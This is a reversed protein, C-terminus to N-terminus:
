MNPLQSQELLWCTLVSDLYSDQLARLIYFFSAIFSTKSSQPCNNLVSGIDRQPDFDRSVEYDLHQTCDLWLREKPNDATEWWGYRPAQRPPLTEVDFISTFVLAIITPQFELNM